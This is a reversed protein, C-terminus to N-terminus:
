GNRDEGLHGAAYIARAIAECEELPTIGTHENSPLLGAGFTREVAERILRVGHGLDRYNQLLGEYADDTTM